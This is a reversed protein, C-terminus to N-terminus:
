LLLHFGGALSLPFTAERYNCSSALPVARSNWNLTKGLMLFQAHNSNSIKWFDDNLDPNAMGM